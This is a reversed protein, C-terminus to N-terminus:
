FIESTREQFIIKARNVCVPRAAATFVGKVINVASEIIIGATGTYFSINVAPRIDTLNLRKFAEERVARFKHQPEDFFDAFRLVPMKGTCMFWKKVVFDCLFLFGLWSNVRFSVFLNKSCLESLVCLYQKIASKASKISKELTIMKILTVQAWPILSLKKVASKRLNDCIISKPNLKTAATKSPKQTCRMPRVFRAKEVKSGACWGRLIHDLTLIKKSLLFDIKGIKVYNPKFNPENSSFLALKPSFNPENQSQKAKNKPTSKLVYNKYTRTSYANTDYQVGPSNAKNQMFLTSKYLERSLHLPPKLCSKCSLEVFLQNIPSNTFKNILKGNKSGQHKICTKLTRHSTERTEHNNSM